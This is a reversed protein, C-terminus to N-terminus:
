TKGYVYNYLGLPGGFKDWQTNTGSCGIKSYTTSEMEVFGLVVDQGFLQKSTGM